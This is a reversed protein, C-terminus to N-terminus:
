GKRACLGGNRQELVYFITAAAVSGECFWRGYSVKGGMETVVMGDVSLFKLLLEGSADKLM